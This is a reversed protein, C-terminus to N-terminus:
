DEGARRRQRREQRGSGWMDVLAMVVTSPAADRAATIRGGGGVM